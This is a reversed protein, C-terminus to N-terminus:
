LFIEDGHVFRGGYEAPLRVPFRRRRRAVVSQRVIGVEVEEEEEHHEAEHHDAEVDQDDAEAEVPGHRVRRPLHGPLVARQYLLDSGLVPRPSPM